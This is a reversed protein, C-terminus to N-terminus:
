AKFRPKLGLCEKLVQIPVTTGLNCGLVTNHKYESRPIWLYTHGLGHTVTNELSWTKIRFWQERPGLQGEDKNSRPDKM